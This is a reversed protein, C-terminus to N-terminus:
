TGWGEEELELLYIKVMICRVHELVLDQVLKQSRSPLNPLNPDKELELDPCTVRVVQIM